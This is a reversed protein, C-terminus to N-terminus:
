LCYEYCLNRFKNRKRIEELNKEVNKEVFYRLIKKSYFDRFSMVKLTINIEKESNQLLYPKIENELIDNTLYQYKLNEINLECYM